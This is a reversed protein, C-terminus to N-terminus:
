VILPTSAVVVRVGAKVVLMKAVAPLMAVEVTLPTTAVLERMLVVRAELLALTNWVMMLPTDLVRADIM